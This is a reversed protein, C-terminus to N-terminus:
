CEQSLNCVYGSIAYGYLRPSAEKPAKILTPGDKATYPRVSIAVIGNADNSIRFSYYEGLAVAVPDFIFKADLHNHPYIIVGGTSAEGVKGSPRLPLEKIHDGSPKAQFIQLRIPGINTDSFPENPSHERGAIIIVSGVTPQKARFVQEIYGGPALTAARDPSQPRTRDYYSYSPVGASDPISANGSPTVTAPGATSQSALNWAEGVATAILIASFGALWLDRLARRVAQRSRHAEQRHILVRWVLGSISIAALIALTAELLGRILGLFFSSISAIVAFM